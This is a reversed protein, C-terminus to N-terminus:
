AVKVSNVSDWVIIKAGPGTPVQGSSCMSCGVENMKNSLNM